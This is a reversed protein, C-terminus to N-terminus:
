GSLKTKEVFGRGARDVRGMTNVYFEERHYLKEVGIHSLFSEYKGNCSILGENATQWLHKVLWEDTLDKSQVSNGLLVFMEEDLIEGERTGILNPRLALLAQFYEFDSLTSIECKKDRLLLSIMADRAPTKVLETINTLVGFSPKPKAWADRIPLAKVRFFLADGKCTHM